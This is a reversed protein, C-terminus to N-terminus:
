DPPTLTVIDPFDRTAKFHSAISREAEKDDCQVFLFSADSIGFHTKGVVGWLEDIYDETSEALRPIDVFPLSGDGGGDLQAEHTWITRGVGGLRRIIVSEM